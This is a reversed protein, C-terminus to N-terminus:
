SWGVPLALEEGAVYDHGRHKRLENALEMVAEGSIRM